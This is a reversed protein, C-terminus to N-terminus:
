NFFANSIKNGKGEKVSNIKRSQCFEIYSVKNKYFGIFILIAERTNIV